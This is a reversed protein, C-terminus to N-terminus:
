DDFLKFLGYIAAGAAGAIALPAAAVIAVGAVMPAVVGGGVITGGIAALGSSIGVGSLGAVGATSVAGIMGVTGVTAGVVTAKRAAGRADREGEPADPDDAFVTNNLVAVGLAGPAAGLVGLGAVAGGGVAGGVTALGSMVGAGSFGAVAGTAGVVGLGAATGAAGLAGTAATGGAKQQVQESEASGTKCWHAFHECNNFVLNYDREGLRGLARAVVTDADSCFIHSKIRIEDGAAFEALSTKKVAANEKQGPEGTYHVVMGEGVYIGHHTYLGDKRYCYLHDGRNVSVEATHTNENRRHRSAGRAGATLSRGTELETLLADTVEVRSSHTKPDLGAQRLRELMELNSLGILRAVEHVRMTTTM